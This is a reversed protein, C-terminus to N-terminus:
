LWRRVQRCYEEYEEGFDRRLRPEEIFIIFLTFALFVLIMYIGLDASRMFQVEGLLILMVGVYMPNRSYRYWRTKVLKKTPDIPSLTGKGKVAFDIICTLLIFLGILFIFVGLYHHFPLPRAHLNELDARVILYPILGASMGPLLITFLLNRLLLSLM